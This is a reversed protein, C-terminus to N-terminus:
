SAGPPASRRVPARGRPQEAPAPVEIPPIALSVPAGGLEVPSGHHSITITAGRLLEYTASAATVTVSLHRGRYCVRFALRSIDTPLRPAFGLAPSARMGGFGAVLATWAGALSAMHLGDRTNRALDGLDM